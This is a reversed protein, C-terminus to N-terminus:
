AVNIQIFDKVEDASPISTQAGARTVSIASYAQAM